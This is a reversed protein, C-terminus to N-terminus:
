LAPILGVDRIDGANAPSNKVVLVWPFPVCSSDTSDKYSGTFRFNNWVSFNLSFFFSPVDKPTWGESGVKCHLPRLNSGQDPFYSVVHQLAALGM